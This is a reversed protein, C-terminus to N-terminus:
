KLLENYQKLMKDLPYNQEVYQRYKLSEYKDELILQKAESVTNWIWEPNWIQNAFPFNHIIPKIGVSCAEAIAFGFAEKTSCSLLFDKDQLWDNINSVWGVNDFVVNLNNQKIFYDVYLKRWDRLGRGMIHLSYDRPLEALIMLATEIRKHDKFTGIWAIKKSREKERFTFKNTNVGHKILHVNTKPTLKIESLVKDKIHDAVFVLHNVWGWNVRGHNGVWADIDHERCIIIKDMPQQGCTPDKYFHDNLDSARMISNECFEFFAVDCWNVLAPDWSKDIKVEHGCQKWHEILDVTFKRDGDFLAIKM